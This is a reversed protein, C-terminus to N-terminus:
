RENPYYGQKTRARLGRKKMKVEVARWKDGDGPPAAYGVSYQSRLEATIVQFINLFESTSTPFYSDGGTIDAVGRLLIAAPDDLRGMGGEMGMERIGISYIRVGTKKAAEEVQDPTASSATDAGDSIVIMALRGVKEKFHELTNFMAQNLPTMARHVAAVKGTEESLSDFDSTFESVLKVEPGFTVVMAHDAPKLQSIFQQAAFVSRRIKAGRMSGSTDVLIAVWLPREESSFYRIEQEAGDEFVSFDDKALQGVLKGRSDTVIVDLSVVNARLYFDSQELPATTIETSAQRGLNDLAIVSVKRGNFKRGFDHIFEWPEADDTGVLEGDVYFQVAELSAEDEFEVEVIIPTRGVVYTGEAPNTIAVSFTGETATVPQESPKSRVTKLARDSTAIILITRKKTYAGLDLTTEFPPEPDIAVLEGDLYFEVYDPLYDGILEPSVKLTQKGKLYREAHVLIRSELERAGGAYRIATQEQEEQAHLPYFSVALTIIAGIVVANVIRM